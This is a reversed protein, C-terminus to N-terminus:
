EHKHLFNLECWFCVIGGPPGFKRLFEELREPTVDKDLIAAGEHPSRLSKRFARKEKDSLSNFFDNLRQLLDRIEDRNLGLRELIQDDSMHDNM